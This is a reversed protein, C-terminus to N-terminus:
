KTRAYIHVCAHMYGLAHKLDIFIDVIDCVCVCMCVCVCVCVHMDPFRWRIRWVCVCVCVCVSVCSAYGPVAV